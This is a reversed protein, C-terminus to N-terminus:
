FLVVEVRLTEVPTPLTYRDGIDGLDGSITINSINIINYLSGVVSRWYSILNAHFQLDGIKMGIDGIDGSVLIGVDESSRSHSNDLDLVDDM